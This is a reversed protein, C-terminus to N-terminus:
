HVTPIATSHSSSGADSVRVPPTRGNDDLPDAFFNCSGMLAPMSSPLPPLSTESAIESSIEEETSPAPEKEEEVETPFSDEDWSAAAKLVEGKEGPPLPLSQLIEDCSGSSYPIDQSPSQSLQLLPSPARLAASPEASPSQVDLEM